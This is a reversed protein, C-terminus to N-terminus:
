VVLLRLLVRISFLVYLLLRRRLFLTLLLLLLSIRLQDRWGSPLLAVLGLSDVLALRLDVIALELGLADRPERSQVLLHRVRVHHGLVVGQERLHLHLEAVLVGHLVEVVM